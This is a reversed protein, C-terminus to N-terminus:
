RYHTNELLYSPFHAKLWIAITQFLPLLKANPWWPSHPLVSLGALIVLATIWIGGLLLGMIFGGSRDLLTLKSTNLLEGLVMRIAKGLLMTLFYLSIFAIALKAQPDKISLPILYSLERSFGLGVMLGVLECLVSFAQHKYGRYLGIGSSITVMGAITYDVWIM